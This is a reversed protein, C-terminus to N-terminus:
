STLIVSSCDTTMLMATPMRTITSSIAMSMRIPICTRTPIITCWMVMAIHIRTPMSTRQGQRRTIMRTSIILMTTRMRMPRHMRITM